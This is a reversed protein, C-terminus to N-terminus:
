SSNRISPLQVVSWFTGFNWIWINRLKKKLSRKFSRIIETLFHPNIQDRFSEGSSM